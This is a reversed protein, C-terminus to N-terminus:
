GGACCGSSPPPRWALFRSWKGELCWPCQGLCFGEPHTAPRPVFWSSGPSIMLHSQLLLLGLVAQWKGLATRCSAAAQDQLMSTGWRSYPCKQALPRAQVWLVARPCVNRVCSFYGLGRTYAQLSLTYDTGLPVQPAWCPGCEALWVGTGSGWHRGFSFVKIRDQWPCLDLLGSKPSPQPWTEWLLTESRVGLGWHSIAVALWWPCWLGSMDQSNPDTGM